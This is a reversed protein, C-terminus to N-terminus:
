ARRGLSFQASWARSAVRSPTIGFARRWPRRRSTVGSVIARQRRSMARRRQAARYM